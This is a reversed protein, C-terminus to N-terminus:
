HSVETLGILHDDEVQGDLYHHGERCRFFRGLADEQIVRVAGPGICTFGGDTRVKVGPTADATKIYNTM